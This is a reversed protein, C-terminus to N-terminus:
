EELDYRMLIRGSEISRIEIAAIEAVDLASGASLRATSGPVARWTSVDTSVGDTAVVTLAYPREVAPTEADDSPTYWCELEIRTGWAVNSLRVSAELPVDVVAELAISDAPATRVITVPIAIAAIVVVVAAVAAAWWARRRREARRRALSVIGDRLSADPEGATGDALEEDISRAREASVRSMLGLTPSLEAVARRCQACDALHEEFQRRELSSLAGVVYAADWPAFRAHDPSM